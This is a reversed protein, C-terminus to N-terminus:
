KFNFGKEAVYVCVIKDHGKKYEEFMSKFQKLIHSYFDNQRRGKVKHQNSDKYFINEYYLM